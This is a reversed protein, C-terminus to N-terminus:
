VEGSLGKNLKAFQVRAPSWLVNHTALSDQPPPEKKKPARQHVSTLLLWSSHPGVKLLHFFFFFCPVSLLAEKILKGLSLLTGVPFFLM